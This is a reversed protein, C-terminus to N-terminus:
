LSPPKEGISCPIGTVEYIMEAINRLLAARGTLIIGADVVENAREHSLTSLVSRVQEVIVILPGAMASTVENTHIQITRPLRAAEDHGSVDMVVDENLPMASGVLFRMEEATRAAIAINYKRKVYNAIADDFVKGDGLDIILPSM